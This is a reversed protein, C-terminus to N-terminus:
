YQLSFVRNLEFISFGQVYYIFALVLEHSAYLSMSVHSCLRCILIVDLWLLACLRVLAECCTWLKSTTLVKWRTTIWRTGGCDVQRVRM